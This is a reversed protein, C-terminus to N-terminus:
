RLMVNVESQLYDSNFNDSGRGPGEQSNDRYFHMNGTCKPFGEYFFDAKTHVKGYVPQAEGGM